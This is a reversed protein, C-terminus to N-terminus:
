VALLHGADVPVFAPHVVPGGVVVVGGLGVEGHAVLAVGPQQFEGVGFAGVRFHNSGNFLAM